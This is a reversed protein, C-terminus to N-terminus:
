GRRRPPPSSPSSPAGPRLPSRPAQRRPRPSSARCATSARPRLDSRHPAAGRSGRRYARHARADTGRLRARSPQGRPRRHANAPARAGLRGAARARPRARAPAAARDPAVGDRRAAEEEGARVAGPRDRAARARLPRPLPRRGGGRGGEDDRPARRRPRAAARAPRPRAPLRASRALLVDRGHARGSDRLALYSLSPLGPEFGHVVDFRGRALALSLSARVGVPVGM